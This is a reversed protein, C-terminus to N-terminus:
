AHDWAAGVVEAPQSLIHERIWEPTVQAVNVPVFRGLARERGFLVAAALAFFGAIAAVGYHIEAPRSGDNAFPTGAGTYRMPITLVFGAGPQLDTATYVDRVPEAPQWVPDLTLRLSYRRIEGEREPFAFDHALTYLENDKQLIGSLEYRIAYRIATNSFPADSPLRSRWRLTHADTLAYDDVDDLSRDDTLPTAQGTSPDVRDMGVLQLTQRPRLNFLREGGNWDGSFVISQLETVHLIGDADLNAEVDIADWHLQRQAHVRESAAACLALAAILVVACHHICSPRSAPLVRRRQIAM